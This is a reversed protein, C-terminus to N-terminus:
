SLTWHIRGEEARVFLGGLMSGHQVEYIADMNEAALITGTVSAGIFIAMDRQSLFAIFRSDGCRYTLSIKGTGSTGNEQIVFSTKTGSLISKPVPKYATIKGYFLHQQTLECTDPTDNQITIRFFLNDDGWAFSISPIFFLLFIVRLIRHSYRM